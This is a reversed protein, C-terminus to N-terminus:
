WWARGARPVRLVRLLSVLIGAILAIHLGSIAFIHLTGSQMFPEAVEQTLATKWGLVMAWLLRLSEDEGGLGKALIEQGWQCFRDSLPPRSAGFGPSDPLQWDNTSECRLQYSVGRYRLYARYDFQGPAVPGGPPQMVGAAEILRGSFFRADLLGPTSSTVRGFAPQWDEGRRRLAQVQLDVVCRQVVRGGREHVRLVPAELLPGRVDVNDETRGGILRRLDNPSLVATRTTLNTWAALPLLLWLATTRLWTSVLALAALSFSLAFLWALSAPLLNGAILGCSYLLAVPILPGRM